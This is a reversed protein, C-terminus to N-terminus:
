AVAQLRSDRQQCRAAASYDDKGQFQESWQVWRWSITDVLLWCNQDQGAIRGKLFLDYYPGCQSINSHDSRSLFIRGHIQQRGM